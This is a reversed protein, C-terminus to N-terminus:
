EDGSKRRVKCEQEKEAGQEADPHARFPRRSHPRRVYPPGLPGFLPCARRASAALTSHDFATQQGGLQDRKFPELMVAVFSVIQREETRWRVSPPWHGSM